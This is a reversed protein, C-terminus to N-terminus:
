SEVHDGHDMSVDKDGQQDEVVIFVRGEGKVRRVVYSFTFRTTSRQSREPVNEAVTTSFM